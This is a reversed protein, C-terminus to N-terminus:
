LDRYVMELTMVAYATALVPDKEMWRGSENAWSGDEQELDILKLGLEKSWDVTKGGQLSLEPAGYTILAKAMVQYYYFLGDEGMGPNEDVSYHSKLWGVAATVRPDTRTLDAYIYSLLGAYSMSGYSRAGNKGTEGASSDGPFYMFGGRDDPSTSVYSAKNVSPLNQCRQIFAIAANWDLKPANARDKGAISESARIAELAIVTNSLDPHGRGTGNPGYGIGGDLSPDALGKAQQGIVFDHANRIVGDYKPDNAMVLAILSISTNYNALGKRYIGGDPQVCSLIYDYAKQIYPPKQPPNGTPDGMYAWVPLATLAPYQNLSWSGDPNQHKQLWALGRQIAIGVENRVSLDAEKRPIPEQQASAAGAILLIAFAAFIIPRKM